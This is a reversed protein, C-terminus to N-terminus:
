EREGARLQLYTKGQNDCAYGAFFGTYADDVGGFFIPQLVPPFIAITPGFHASYTKGEAGTTTLTGNTLHFVPAAIKTHSIYPQTEETASPTPLLVFWTSKPAIASLTFPKAITNFLVLPVICSPAAAVTSSFVALLSTLLITSPAHM